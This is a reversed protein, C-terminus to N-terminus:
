ISRAPPVVGRREIYGLVDALTRLQAAEADPISVGLEEERTRM